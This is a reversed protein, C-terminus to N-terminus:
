LIPRNCHRFICLEATKKYLSQLISFCFESVLNSSLARHFNELCNLSSVGFVIDGNSIFEFHTERLLLGPKPRRKPRTM